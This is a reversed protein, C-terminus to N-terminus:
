RYGRLAGLAYAWGIWMEAGDMTFAPTHDPDIGGCYRSEHLV